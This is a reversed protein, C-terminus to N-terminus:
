EREHSAWPEESSVQRIAAMVADMPANEYDIHGWTILQAIVTLWYPPDMRMAPHWRFWVQPIVGYREGYQIFTKSM